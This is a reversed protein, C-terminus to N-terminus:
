WACWPTSPTIADDVPINGTIRIPEGPAWTAQINLAELAVRKMPLDFTTLEARVNHCYTELSELVAQQEAVRRLSEQLDQEQALLRAQKDQIERKYTKFEELNIVESAYAREWQRLERDLKGRANQLVYVEREADRETEHATSKHRELEQAILTPNNLMRDVAQWVPEEVDEALVQGRCFVQPTTPHWVQSLCRYRRKEHSSYGTMPGSCRGCRLRGALFLYEYKRRRKNLAKNRAIREQVARFIDERLIAPVKLTIWEEKKRWICTTGTHKRKNWHLCGIYTENRLILSLASTSWLGVKGETQHRRASHTPIGECIFQTAIARLNMGQLYLDFIRRVLAAEEDDIEFRGKHPESIYRYGLPVGGGHPYGTRIRGLLGRRTRELLKEREYEALVGRMQFFLSGEAGEEIAHSVCLLRVGAEDMEDKLALPKGTKRALRDPDLVIVAALGGARSVDRLRRMAPRDLTTGSIGEDVFIHSDPVVYGERQALAQCADVQTPISFGKGQDETSVRAYIAALKPTDAQPSPQRAPTGHSLSRSSM